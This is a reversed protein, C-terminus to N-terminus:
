ESVPEMKDVASSVVDAAEMVDVHEWIRIVRWGMFTLAADVERDREVTKELKPEWYDANRVPLTGHEPCSHWFCGDVFVAIRQKPFVIDPTVRM